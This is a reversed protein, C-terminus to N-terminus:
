VPVRVRYNRSSDLEERFKHPSLDQNKLPRIELRTINRIFPQSDTM